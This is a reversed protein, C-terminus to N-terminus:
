RALDGVPGHHGPDSRVLLVAEGFQFAAQRLSSIEPGSVATDKQGPPQGFVELHAHLIRHNKQSLPIVADGRRAFILDGAQHFIGYRLQVIEHGVQRQRLGLPQDPSRLPGGRQGDHDVALVPQRAHHCFQLVAEALIVLHHGPFLHQRLHDLRDLGIVGAPQDHQQDDVHDDGEADQAGYQRHGHLPGPLEPHHHGDPHFASPQAQHRDQLTQHQGEDPDERANQQANRHEHIQM